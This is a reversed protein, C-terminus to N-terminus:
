SLSAAKKRRLSDLRAGAIARIDRRVVHDPPNDEMMDSAIHVGVTVPLNPLMAMAQGLAHIFCLLDGFEELTLKIEDSENM